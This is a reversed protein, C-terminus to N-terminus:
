PRVTPALATLPASCSWPIARSKDKPVYVETHLHVGDRMPIKFTKKTYHTSVYNKEATNQQAFGVALSLFLVLTLLYRPKM